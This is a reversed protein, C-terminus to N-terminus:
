NASDVPPEHGVTRMPYLNQFPRFLYCVRRKPMPTSLRKAVGIQRQSKGFASTIVFVAALPRIM